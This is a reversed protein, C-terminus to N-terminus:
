KRGVPVCADGGEALLRSLDSFGLRCDGQIGWSRGWSNRLVIEQSELDVGRALIAHGGTVHGTVSIRGNADPAHMGQYWNVGLVVPGENSLARLVDDLSFAWRFESFYGAAKMVQAGALVSTGSYNPSAGPYEGGEWPDQQQMRFYRNRILERGSVDKAKPEACVEHHWAFSVCQGERGQDLSQRLNWIRSTFTTPVVAAIPFDSNRSDPQPLRDLRPDTTEFGGRLQIM